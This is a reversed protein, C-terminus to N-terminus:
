FALCIRFGVSNAALGSLTSFAFIGTRAYTGSYFGRELFPSTSYPFRSSDSFWSNDGGTTSMSSTEYIADGYIGSNAVYNAYLSDTSGIRYINKYKEPANVLSLGYSTLNSNKNDIYAAVADYSGGSM